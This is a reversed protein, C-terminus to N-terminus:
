MVTEGVERGVWDFSQTQIPGIRALRGNRETQVNRIKQRSQLGNVSKTGVWQDSACNPGGRPFLQTRPTSQQRRERLTWEERNLEQTLM